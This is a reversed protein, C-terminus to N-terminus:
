NWISVDWTGPYYIVFEFTVDFQVAHFANWTRYSVKVYLPLSYNEIGYTNGMRFETGKEYAILLNEINTNDMGNQLIRIRVENNQGVVRKFNSRAVYRSNLVRYSPRHKQVKGTLAVEDGSASKKSIIAKSENQFSYISSGFIVLAMLFIRKAM